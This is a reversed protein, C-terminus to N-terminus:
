LCKEILRKFSNAVLYLNVSSMFMFTMCIVKTAISFRSLSDSYISFGGTSIVSMSFNLAEWLKMESIVLLTLLTISMAFYYIIVLIPRRYKDEETKKLGIEHSSFRRVLKEKELFFSVWVVIGLGGLWQLSSRWFLVPDSIEEINKYMSLGTSTIGSMAEFVSSIFDFPKLSGTFQHTLYIPIAAFFSTMLWLILLQINTNQFSFEKKHFLKLIGALIFFFLCSIAFSYNLNTRSQYFEIGFSLLSFLGLIGLIYSYIKIM